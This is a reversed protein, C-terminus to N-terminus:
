GISDIRSLIAPVGGRKEAVDPTIRLKIRGEALNAGRATRPRMAEVLDPSDISIVDELLLEASGEDKESVKGKVAVITDVSVFNRRKEYLKPFVICDVTGVYDELKFRAMEQQKKTFIHRASTIIGALVVVDGDHFRASPVVSAEDTSDAAANANVDTTVADTLGRILGAYDDLPHGSLYVGLMEKERSLKDDKSLDKVFPLAPSKPKEGEFGDMQFLSIQSKNRNRARKQATKVADECAALLQARNPCIDDFAGAEILSEITRKNLEKPNIYDIFDYFGDNGSFKDRADLIAGVPGEGVNKVGILGFRIRGDKAVFKRESKLVSPPDVEVGMDRANRVFSSIYEPRGAMSTMLAALFEAPYYAKLYATQYSIVAYAAAHSKNFAYAAFTVMDDFIAKAAEESVGNAICGPIEVNGNEDKKGYIFYQKEEMMVQAKKKSMARRVLDSRGFSYGGLDRVIALLSLYGKSIIELNEGM